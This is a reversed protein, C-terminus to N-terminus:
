KNRGHGICYNNEVICSRKKHFFLYVFLLICGVISSYGGWKIPLYEYQFKINNIGKVVPIAMLGNVNLIDVSKGNTSAHWYKSFPISFFAYKNKNVIFKGSFSNNTTTFDRIIESRHIKVFKDLNQPKLLSRDPKSYKLVKKVNLIKEDPVVLYQLMALSRINKPLKMFESKKIFKDYTFGVPLYRPNESMYIVQGNENKYSKIPINKPIQKLSLVYRAGLLENTGPPGQKTMNHRGVGLNYYFERVSNDVTSLFSNICPVSNVMGLNYYTYRIGEDFHYRYPLKNELHSFSNLYSFVSQSVSSNFKKFDIKTNDIKRQYDYISVGMLIISIISLSTLFRKIYFDRQSKICNYLWGSCILSFVAFFISAWYRKYSNFVGEYHTCVIFAFILGVCLKISSIVDYEEPRELVKGTALAFYLCMIYYWRKYDEINLFAFSHSLVPVIAMVLCVILINKLWGKEKRLYALVFVCGTLPLYAANTYWDRKTVSFSFNMPEAPLLVAKVFRLADTLTILLWSKVPLHRGIRPNNLTGEIVPVLLLGSLLVGITGEVLCSLFSNFIFKKRSQQKIKVSDMLNNNGFFGSAVYRVIFYIFLFIVAQFFFVYNIIINLFCAAAFWGRKEEEILREMSYPLLPFFAVADQFHYFVLSTLQFGSFAYLVSASLIVWKRELHRTFYLASLAGAMAFKLVIVWPMLYPINKSGFPLLLWFFPSGLNYFSFAEIFNGGLDIGWNWLFAGDKVSQNMFINFPIEEAAYDFLMSFSGKGTFVFFAIVIGSILGNLLFAQICVPMKLIKESNLVSIFSKM